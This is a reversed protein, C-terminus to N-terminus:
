KYVAQDAPLHVFHRIEAQVNPIDGCKVLNQTPKCYFM